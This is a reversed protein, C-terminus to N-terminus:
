KIPPSLLLDRLLQTMEAAPVAYSTQHWYIVLSMIGSLFFLMVEKRHASQDAGFYKQLEQQHTMAHNLSREMLLATMHNKELASLLSGRSHWYSFLEQIEIPLDPSLEEAPVRFTISASITHDILALLVDDKNGFVRYFVKRSLGTKRCLTTVSISTYSEKEMLELLCAEFCRQQFETKETTCLKYM